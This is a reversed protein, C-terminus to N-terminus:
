ARRRQRGKAGLNLRARSRFKKLAKEQEKRLETIQEDDLALVNKVDNPTAIKM